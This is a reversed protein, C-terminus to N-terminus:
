QSGPAASDTQSSGSSGRTASVAKDIAQKVQRSGAPPWKSQVEQLFRNAEPTALDRVRDVVQKKVDDSIEGSPRFLVQYLGATVTGFQMSGLKSALGECQDAACLQGIPVAAELVNHELANMLDPVAQRAKISGLGTASQGRVGPDADSLGARLAKVAPAGRTKALAAVAERRIEPSRDRAYWAVTESAAESETDALAGLAARTLSPPMGKRLLEVIAPVAASGSKASVRVDDLAARVVALDDSHLRKITDAPLPISPAADANRGAAPAGDGPAVSRTQKQAYVAPPRVIPALVALAVLAGCAGVRMARWARGAGKWQLAIGVVSSGHCRAPARFARSGGIDVRREIATDVVKPAIRAAPTSGAHVVVVAGVVSPPAPLLALPLPELLLEELLLEDLLLEDLPLEDLPLEDLLLEDLLPPELLLLPPSSPPVSPM